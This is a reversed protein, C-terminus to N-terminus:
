SHKQTNYRIGKRKLTLAAAMMSGGKWVGCEVIAGDIKNDELYSIADILANVREHGTMTFEKVAEYIEINQPSFDLPYKKYSIIDFGFKRIVSRVIKKIFVNRGFKQILSIIISEL